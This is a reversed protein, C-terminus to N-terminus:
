EVLAIVDKSKLIILKGVKTGSYENFVVITNINPMEQYDKDNISENKGVAIVRGIMCNEKNSSAQIIIGGKTTEEQIPEVVIRSGLPIIKKNELLLNM